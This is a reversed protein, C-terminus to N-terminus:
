GGGLDRCSPGSGATRRLLAGHAPERDENRNEGENGEGRETESGGAGGRLFPGGGSAAFRDSRHFQCGADGGLDESGGRGITGGILRDVQSAEDELGSGLDERM